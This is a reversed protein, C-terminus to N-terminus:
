GFRLVAKKFIHFSKQSLLSQVQKEQTFKGHLLVQHCRAIHIDSCAHLSLSNSPLVLALVAVSGSLGARVNLWALLTKSDKHRIWRGASRRRLGGPAEWRPRRRWGEGDGQRLWVWSLTQRLLQSLHQFLKIRALKDQWLLEWGKLFGEIRPRSDKVQECSAPAKRFSADFM